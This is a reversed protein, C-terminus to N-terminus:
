SVLSYERAAESPNEADDADRSFGQSLNLSQFNWNKQFANRLSVKEKEGRGSSRSM